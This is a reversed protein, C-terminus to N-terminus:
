CGWCFASPPLKAPATPALWGFVEGAQVNLSINDVAVFDGFRKVLNEVLVAPAASQKQTSSLGASM